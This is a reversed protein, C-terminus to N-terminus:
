ESPAPEASPAEPATKKLRPKLFGEGGMLGEIGQAELSAKGECFPVTVGDEHPQYSMERVGVDDTKAGSLGLKTAFREVDWLVEPPGGAEVPGCEWPGNPMRMRRQHQEDGEEKEADTKTCRFKPLLVLAGDRIEWRGEVAYLGQQEFQYTGNECLTYSSPIRVAFSSAVGHIRLRRVDVDPSALAKMKEDWDPRSRLTYLRRDQEMYSFAQFGGALAAALHEHAADFAGGQALMVAAEYRMVPGREHGRDAASVYAKSADAYRGLQALAGAMHEYIDVSRQGDKIASECLSVVREFDKVELASAIEPSWDRTPLRSREASPAQGKSPVGEAGPTVRTMEKDTSATPTESAGQCGVLMVAATLLSFLHGRRTSLIKM